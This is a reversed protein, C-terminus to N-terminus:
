KKNATPSAVGALKRIFFMLAAFWDKFILWNQKSSNEKLVISTFNDVIMLLLIRLALLLNQNIVRVLLPM